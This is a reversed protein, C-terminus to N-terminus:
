QCSIGECTSARSPRSLGCLSISPTGMFRHGRTINSSHIGLITAPVVSAGHLMVVWHVPRVFEEARAGWRMRKPIPLASLATAVMEPLLEAAARGPQESRYILWEGKDTKLRSLAAFEAGCSRAFGLAAPTPDGAANFAASIAPGRKEIHQAGQTRALATLSVALRRPSALAMVATFGLGAGRVRAELEAAFRESLNRLSKPPLEETGIEVLFDAADSM